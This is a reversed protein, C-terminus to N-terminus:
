ANTLQITWEDSEGFQCCSCIPGISELYVEAVLGNIMVQIKGTKQTSPDFGTECGGLFWEKGDLFRQFSEKDMQIEIM